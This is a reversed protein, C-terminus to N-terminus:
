LKIDKQYIQFKLKKEWKIIEAKFSLLKDADL